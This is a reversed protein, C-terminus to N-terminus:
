CIKTDEIWKIDNNNLLINNDKEKKIWNHYSLTDPETIIYIFSSKYGNKCLDETFLPILKTVKEFNREKIRMAIIIKIIKHYNYEDYLIRLVSFLQTDDNLKDHLQSAFEGYKSYSNIKHLETLLFNLEAM